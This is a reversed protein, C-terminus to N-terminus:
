AFSAKTKNAIRVLILMVPVETLVGVTTILWNVIWTIFLGKPNNGIEKVSRFDVKMMMPYIMIWILIAIPVSIGSIQFKGLTVPIVPIFHGIAVGIAMCLLVWVSLYRQFSNMAKRQNKM